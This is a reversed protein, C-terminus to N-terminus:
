FKWMLLRKDTWIVFKVEKLKRMQITKNGSILEVKNEKVIVNMIWWLANYFIDTSLSVNVNTKM